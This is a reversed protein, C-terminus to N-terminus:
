SGLYWDLGLILLDMATHQGDWEHLHFIQHELARQCDRTLEEPLTPHTLLCVLKWLPRTDSHILSFLCDRVSSSYFFPTSSCWLSHVSSRLKRQLSSSVSQSFLQKTKRNLKGVGKTIVLMRQVQTPFCRWNMDFLTNKTNVWYLCHKCCHNEVKRINHGKLVSGLTTTVGLCLIIKTAVEYGYIKSSNHIM